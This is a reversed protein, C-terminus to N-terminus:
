SIHGAHGSGNRKTKLCGLTLSGQIPPKGDRPAYELDIRSVPIGIPDYGRSSNWGHLSVKRVGPSILRYLPELGDNAYSTYFEFVKSAFFWAIDDRGAQFYRLQNGHIDATFSGTYVASGTTRPLGSLGTRMAIAEGASSDVAAQRNAAQKRM